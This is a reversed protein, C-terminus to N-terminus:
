PMSHGLDWEHNYRQEVEEEEEITGNKYRILPFHCITVHLSMRPCVPTTESTPSYTGKEVDPQHSPHQIHPVGISDLPQPHNPIPSKIM